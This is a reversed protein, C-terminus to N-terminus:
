HDHGGGGGHGDATTLTFAATHVSGRHRFDLFLRYRGESPVEALFGIEPGSGTEEPHVHLYALDGERLAVLHGYSGLYPQLDTVPEGGRTVVATVPSSEGATLGGELRVRYGDVQATRTVPTAGLPAFAGPVQVDTGLVLEPGGMPTFDALLRNTGPELTTRATWTGDGALTPHVHRYHAGDRRITILHLPREHVEDYATVPEGDPGLVTFRLPRDAGPRPQSLLELTYGDQSVALGGPQEAPAPEDEHDDHGADVDAEDDHSESAHAEEVPEAGVPGVVSGLGLAALFAIALGMVFAAVRVPTNM